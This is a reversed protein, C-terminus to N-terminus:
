ISWVFQINKVAATFPSGWLFPLILTVIPIPCIYLGPYPNSSAEAQIETQM